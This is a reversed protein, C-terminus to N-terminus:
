YLKDGNKFLCITAISTILGDIAAVNMPILLTLRTSEGFIFFRFGAFCFTTLAVTIFITLMLVANKTTLMLFVNNKNSKPNTGREQVSLILLRKSLMYLIIFAEFQYILRWSNFSLEALILHKTYVSWYASFLTIPSFIINFVNIGIFYKFSLKFPTNSFVYYLRGSFFSVLAVKGIYWFITSLIRHIHSSHYVYYGNDDYYPDVIFYFCYISNFMANLANSIVIISATYKFFSTDINATFFYISISITLISVLISLILIPITIYFENMESNKQCFLRFTAGFSKLKSNFIVLSFVQCSFQGTFSLLIIFLNIM